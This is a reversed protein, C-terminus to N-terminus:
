FLGRNTKKDLYLLVAVWSTEVGWLVRLKVRAEKKQFNSNSQQKTKAEMLIGCKQQNIISFAHNM